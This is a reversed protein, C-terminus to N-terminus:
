QKAAKLARALNGTKSEILLTKPDSGVVRSTRRYRSEHHEIHIGDVYAETDRPANAKAANEARQAAADTLQEVTPQRMASAFFAENFQITTDGRRAM